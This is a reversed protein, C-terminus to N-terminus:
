QATPGCALTMHYNIAESEGCDQQERLGLALLLEIQAAWFGAADAHGKRMSLAHLATASRLTEALQTGRLNELDFNLRIAGEPISM